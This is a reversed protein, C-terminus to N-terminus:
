KYSGIRNMGCGDKLSQGLESSWQMADCDLVECLRGGDKLNAYSWESDVDQELDVAQGEVLRPLRRLRRKDIVLNGDAVDGTLGEDCIFKGRGAWLVKEIYLHQIPRAV